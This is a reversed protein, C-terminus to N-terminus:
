CFLRFLSLSLSFCSGCVQSGSLSVSETSEIEFPEEINQDKYEFSSYLQKPKINTSATLSTPSPLLSDCSDVFELAQRLAKSIFSIDRGQLQSHTPLYFGCTGFHESNPLSNNWEHLFPQLHLPFFFDRTEIGDNALLQRIISRIDKSKVLVGFVWPTKVNMLTLGNCDKLNTTYAEAIKRRQEILKPICPVASMALAAQLGSMKYNGSPNFHVFHFYASFGHNRYSRLVDAIDADKALVFGGDGSTILKNAYLSACAFDGFTGVLQNKEGYTVGIAECIDEILRWGSSKCLAAIEEIDSPSGYTHTVIVARISKSDVTKAATQYEKVSPNPSESSSDVFVPVAGVDRVANLVAVMTFAPLLVLDGRCIGAARLALVLAAWGNSCAVATPVKFFSCLSKEFDRVVESASSLQRKTLVSVVDSIATPSLFPEAVRYKWETCIPEPHPLFSKIKSPLAKYAERVFLPLSNLYYDQELESKADSTGKSDDNKQLQTIVAFSSSVEFFFLFFFFSSFSLFFFFSFFLFFLFSGESVEM